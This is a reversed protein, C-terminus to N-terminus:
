KKYGITLDNVTFKVLILCNYRNGLEKLFYIFNYSQFKLFIVNTINLSVM